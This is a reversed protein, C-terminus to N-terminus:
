ALDRRQMHRFRRLMAAGGPAPPADLLDHALSLAAHDSPFKQRAYRQHYPPAEM